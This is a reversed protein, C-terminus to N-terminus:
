PSNFDGVLVPHEGLACTFDFLDSLEDLFTSVALLYQCRPVLKIVSVEFTTVPATVQCTTVNLGEQYIFAVGGGRGRARPTHVVLYGPPLMCGHVADPSDAPVWSEGLVLLHLNEDQILLQTDAANMVASRANLYGLKLDSQLQSVHTPGPNSEINGSLLLLLAVLQPGICRSAVLQGQGFCSQAATQWTHRSVYHFRSGPTFSTRSPVSFQSYFGAFPLLHNCMFVAYTSYNNLVALQTSFACFIFYYCWLLNFVVAM